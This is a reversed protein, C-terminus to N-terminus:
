RSSVMSQNFVRSPAAGTLSEVTVKCKIQLKVLTQVGLTMGCATVAISFCLAASISFAQPSDGATVM